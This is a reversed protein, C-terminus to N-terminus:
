LSCCIVWEDDEIHPLSPMFDVWQPDSSHTVDDSGAVIRCLLHMMGSVLRALNLCNYGKSAWQQLIPVIQTGM